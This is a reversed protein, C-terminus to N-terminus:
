TLDKRSCNMHWRRRVKSEERRRKDFERERAAWRVDFERERAAWRATFERERAWWRDDMERADCASSFVRGAVAVGAAAAESKGGAIACEDADRAVDVGSGGCSTCRQTTGEQSFVLGPKSTAAIPRESPAAVDVLATTALAATLTDVLPATALSSEGLASSMDGPFSPAGHNDIDRDDRANGGDDGGRQGNAAVATAPLGLRQASRRFAEVARAATSVTTTTTTAAAVSSPSLSSPLSPQRSNDLSENTGLELWLTAVDDGGNDNEGATPSALVAAQPPTIVRGDLCVQGGYFAAADGRRGVGAVPGHPDRICDHVVPAKGGGVTGDGGVGGGRRDDRHFGSLAGADLSCKSRGVDGAGPRDRKKRVAAAVMGTKEAELAARLRAPQRYRHGARERGEKSAAGCGGDIGAFREFRRVDGDQPTPSVSSRLRRPSTNGGGVAAAVRGEDPNSPHQPVTPPGEGAAPFVRSFEDEGAEEDDDGSRRQPRPTRRSSPQERYHRHQSSAATVVVTAAESAFYVRERLGRSNTSSKGLGADWIASDEDNAENRPTEEMAPRASPVMSGQPRWQQQEQQQPQHEPHHQRVRRQRPPNDAHEGQHHQQRRRHLHPLREDEVVRRGNLSALQPLVRLLDARRNSSGRSGAGGGSSMSGSLGRGSEGGFTAATMMIPNLRLDLDRLSSLNALRGVESIAEM